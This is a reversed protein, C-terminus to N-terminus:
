CSAPLMPSVHFVIYMWFVFCPIRSLADARPPQFMDVSVTLCVCICAYVGLERREGESETQSKITERMWDIKGAISENERAESERDRM